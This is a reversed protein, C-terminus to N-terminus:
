VARWRSYIATSLLRDASQERLALEGTDIEGPHAAIMEELSYHLTLASARIAYATIIVFLPQPTLIARCSELLEPILKFFEWVEGKPGRGFKPPDLLIGDYRAERRGERQVFKLADDEIWRIPYDSLGSLSQNERAWALSKRSADVHTVSAGARVAVLSALGTYGFLNLVRFPRGASAILDAM